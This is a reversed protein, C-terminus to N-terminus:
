RTVPPSHSYWTTATSPLYAQYKRARNTTLTYTAMGTSRPTVYTLTRWPKGPDQYMLLMREHSRLYTQPKPSYYAASATLTVRTGRRVASLRTVTETKTLSYGPLLKVPM